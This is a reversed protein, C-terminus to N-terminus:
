SLMESAFFFCYSVTNIIKVRDVKLKRNSLASFERFHCFVEKVSSHLNRETPKEKKRTLKIKIMIIVGYANYLKM